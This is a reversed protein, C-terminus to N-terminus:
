LERRGSRRSKEYQSQMQMWFALKDTMAADGEYDADSDGYRSGRSEYGSYAAELDGYRSSMMSVYSRIEQQMQERESSRSGSKSNRGQDMLYALEDEFREGDGGGAGEEYEKAWANWAKTAAEYRDNLSAKSNASLRRRDSARATSHAESYAPMTRRNTNPKVQKGLTVAANARATEVDLRKSVATIRRDPSRGLAAAPTSTPWAHMSAGAPRTIMAASKSAAVRFYIVFSLVLLAACMCVVRPVTVETAGVRKM